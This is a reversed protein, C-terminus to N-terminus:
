ILLIYGSYILVNISCNQAVLDKRAIISVANIYKKMNDHQNTLLELSKYLNKIDNLIIKEDFKFRLEQPVKEYKPSLTYM